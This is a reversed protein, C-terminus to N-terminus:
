ILRRSETLRSKAESPGSETMGYRELLIGGGIEKWKAKLSTPLPASGSVMLRFRACAEQARAQKEPEFTAYVDLLRSYIKVLSLIGSLSSSRTPCLELSLVCRRSLWSSLYSLATPRSGDSGFRRLILLDSRSRAISPLLHHSVLGADFKEMFECTAGNWMATLLVNCVGHIHHMPLVHLIRDNSSWGWVKSMSAAQSALAEHRM